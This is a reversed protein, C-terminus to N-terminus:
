KDKDLATESPRPKPSAPAAKQLPHPYIFEKYGPREKGIFYDRNPQVWENGGIEGWGAHIDLRNNWSYIPVSGWPEKPNKPDQGPSDVVGSGPQQTGVYDAPYVRDTPCVGNNAISRYFLTKTMVNIFGKGTGKVTNDFITATGGRLVFIADLADTVTFSNHMLEIQLISRNPNVENVRPQSDAGHAGLPMNVMTCHRVVFRGGTDGDTVGWVGPRPHPATFTCDEIYVAQKTGWSMPRHWSDPKALPNDRIYIFTGGSPVSCHDILGYPGPQTQPASPASVWVCFTNGNVFELNTLRFCDEGGGYILILGNATSWSDFRLDKLTITKRETAGIFVGFGSTASVTITPRNTSSAGQITVLHPISIDLMTPWTYKGGPSGITVTWGDEKAKAVFAIAAATDAYSGDTSITQSARDANFSYGTSATAVVTLFAAVVQRAASCLKRRQAECM